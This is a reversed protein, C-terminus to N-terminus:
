VPPLLHFQPVVPMRAELERVALCGKQDIGEEGGVVRLSDDGGVIDRRGVDSKGM